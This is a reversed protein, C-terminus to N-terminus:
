LASAPVVGDPGSFGKGGALVDVGDGSAMGGDQAAGIAVDGDDVGCGERGGVDGGCGGIGFACLDVAIGVAVGGSDDAFTWSEREDVFDDRGRGAVLAGSGEFDGHGVGESV